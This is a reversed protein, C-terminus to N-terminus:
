NEDRVGAIASGSLAGILIYWKGPLLKATLVAVIASVIWPLFDRKGHWLSVLLAIFAATFAFDLGYKEPSEIVAGGIYGFGTTLAWSVYIMFGGGALFAADLEGKKFERMTLAWNEDACFFLSGYAQWPKLDKFYPQLSAGMLLHRANVIVTTIIIPVVPLPNKWLETAILQSAGAFVSLSMFLSQSLTMGVGAALMGFVLGYAAVNVALPFTMRLGRLFGSLTFNM